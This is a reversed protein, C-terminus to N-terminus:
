NSSLRKQLEVAPEYFIFEQDANEWYLMAKDIYQKAKEPDKDELLLALKYYNRPFRTNHDVEEQLLSIAKKKKGIKDYYNAMFFKGNKLLQSLNGDDNDLIAKCEEYNQDQYNYLFKVLNNYGEGIFSLLSKCENFEDISLIRRDFNILSIMNFYCLNYENYIKENSHFLDIVKSAQGQLVFTSARNNFIENYVTKKPYLKLRLEEYQDISTHSERIQGTRLLLSFQKYILNLSDYLTTSQELGINIRDFADAVKGEKFEIEVIRNILEYNFPEKVLQEELLNKAEDLRGQQELLYSKRNVYSENEPFMALLKNITKEAENLEHYLMQNEYLAVMGKEFNGNEIAENILLETSDKGKNIRYLPILDDYVNFDYPFMEKQIELLQIQSKYNETMYYYAVKPIYQMRLPLTNSFQVAKKYNQVALEKEGKEREISGIDYYCYSCLSDHEIARLAFDLATNVESPSEILTINSLTYNKLAKINSTILASAPLDSTNELKKLPNPIIEVINNSISDIASFPDTNSITIEGLGKGTSTEYITGTFSFSNNEYKYSIDTFYQDNFDEAITRETAVDPVVFFPLNQKSKIYQTLRYVKHVYYEPRQYLDYGLLDSFAVGWWNDEQNGMNRFQFISINKVHDLKPVLSSVKNGNEDILEIYRDTENAKADNTLLLFVSISIALINIGLIIRPWKLNRNKLDPGFYSVIFVSPILALWLLLYLDVWVSDLTYRDSIFHIFQLVAFGIALYSGVFKLTQKSMLKQLWNRTEIKNM